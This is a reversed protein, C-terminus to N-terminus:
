KLTIRNGEGIKPLKIKGGEGRYRLGVYINVESFLAIKNKSTCPHPQNEWTNLNLVHFNQTNYLHSHYYQQRAPLMTAPVSQYQYIQIVLNLCESSFALPLIHSASQAHVNFFRWTLIWKNNRM